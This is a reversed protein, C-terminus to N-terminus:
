LCDSCRFFLYFNVQGVDVSPSLSEGTDELIDVRRLQISGTLVDIEVEGVSVGWIIYPKLDSGKYMYKATLDISKQFCHSVIDIWKPNKLEERIPKMRHLLDECATQM